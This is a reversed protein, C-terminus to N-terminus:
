HNIAYRFEDPDITYTEYPMHDLHVPDRKDSQGVIRIFNQGLISAIDTFGSRPYKRNTRPGILEIIKSTTPAFVM